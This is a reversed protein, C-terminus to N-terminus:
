IYFFTVKVKNNYDTSCNSWTGGNASVMYGGHGLNSFNFGYNKSVVTNKHCMGVAVWNSSCEKIKFYFTKVKNGKQLSPEM